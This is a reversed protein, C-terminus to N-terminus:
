DSSWFPWRFEQDCSELGCAAEWRDKEAEEKKKKEEEYTYEKIGM